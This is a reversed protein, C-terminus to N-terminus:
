PCAVARNYDAETFTYTFKFTIKNVREAIYNKLNIISHESNTTHTLCKNDLQFILDKGKLNVDNTFPSRFDEVNVSGDGVQEENIITTQRPLFVYTKSQKILKITYDTDNVYYFQANQVYESIGCSFTLISLSFAGLLLYYTWIKNQVTQM